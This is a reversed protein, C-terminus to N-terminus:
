PAGVDEVNILHERIGADGNARATGTSTEGTLYFDHSGAAFTGRFVVVSMQSPVSSSLSCVSMAITTGGSAADRIRLLVNLTTSPNDLQPVYGTVVLVRSASLTISTGVIDQTSTTLTFDSATKASALLGGPLANMEAATLVDGNVFPFPM